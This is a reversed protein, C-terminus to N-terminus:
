NSGDKKGEENHEFEKFRRIFEAPTIHLSKARDSVAAVEEKVKNNSYFAKEKDTWEVIDFDESLYKMFNDLTRSMALDDLIHRQVTAWGGALTEAIRYCDKKRAEFSSPQIHKAREALRKATFLSEVYCRALQIKEPQPASELEDVAAQYYGGAQKTLTGDVDLEGQFASFGDSYPLNLAFWSGTATRRFWTKKDEQDIALIYYDSECGFEKDTEAFGAVLQEGAPCIAIVKVKYLHDFGIKGGDYANYLENEDPLPKKNYETSQTTM